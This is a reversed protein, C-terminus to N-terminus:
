GGHAKLLAPLIVRLALVEEAGEFISLVRADAFLRSVPFEEAYGMGGHLQQAERTIWEAQRCAQFKVLSAEMQAAAPADDLARAAAYCGQRCAQVMAAMRVVKEQTLPYRILPRGFVHRDRTYSEAAELAAQMVGLARGATQLRGYAFGEMQLYFGKGRGGDEGVANEAPVPYDEFILEYSHMGRYGLTPIARGAIRGGNPPRYEFDRERFAPKEVVFLTLGKYGLGLDPESRALLGIWEARGAFTCWIKTGNLRWGEATKRASCQISAVDSGFDPETVSIAIMKEGSAMAPLFRRRQRETGGKLLGRALIEPRTILSGFILSVRCLEETVLVMGLTDPKDQVGGYAEPICLGFCGLQAAQRILEDPILLDERHFREAFPQVRREAFARFTQRLLGREEDLGDGGFSQRREIEALAAGNFETSGTARVLDFVRADEAFRSAEAAAGGIRASLLPLQDRLLNVTMGLGALALLAEVEGLEALPLTSRATYTQAYLCALRYGDPQVRDLADPDIKGGHVCARALGAVVADLASQGQRLISDAERLLTQTKM